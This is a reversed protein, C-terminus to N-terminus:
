LKADEWNTMENSFPVRWFLVLAKRDCDWNKSRLKFAFHVSFNCMFCFNINKNERMGIRVILMSKVM